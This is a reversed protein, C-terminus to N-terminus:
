INLSYLFITKMCIFVIKKGDNGGNTIGLLDFDKNGGIEKVKAAVDVSEYRHM